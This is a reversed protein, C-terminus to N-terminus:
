GHRGGAPGDHPSAVRPATHYGTPRFRVRPAATPRPQATAWLGMRGIVRIAAGISACAAQPRVGLAGAREAAGAGDGQEVGGYRHRRHVQGAQQRASLYVDDSDAARERMDALFGSAAETLMGATPATEIATVMALLDKGTITPPMLRDAIDCWTAGHEDALLVRDIQALVKLRHADTLAGLKPLLRLLRAYTQPTM